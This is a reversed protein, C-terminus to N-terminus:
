GIIRIDGGDHMESAPVYDDDGPYDPFSIRYKALKINFYEVVGDCWGCDGYNIKVKKGVHITSFLRDKLLDEGENLM